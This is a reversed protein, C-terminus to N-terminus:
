EAINFEALARCIFDAEYNGFGSIELAKAVRDLSIPYNATVDRVAIIEGNGACRAKAADESVAAIAIKYVCLGDDIYVMYKKYM